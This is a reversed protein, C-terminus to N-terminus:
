PKTARLSYSLPLWPKDPWVHEDQTRKVLHTFMQWPISDHEHFREIHLGADILAQTAAWRNPLRLGKLLSVVGLFVAALAWFRGEQSLRHSRGRSWSQDESNTTM